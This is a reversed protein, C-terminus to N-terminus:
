DMETNEHAHVALHTAEEITGDHDSCPDDLDIRLDTCSISGCKRSLAVVAFWYQKQRKRNEEEEVVVVLVDVATSASLFAAASIKSISFFAGSMRLSLECIQM